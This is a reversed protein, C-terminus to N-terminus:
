DLPNPLGLFSPKHEAAKRELVQQAREADRDKMMASLHGDGLHQFAFVNFRWCNSKPRAGFLM